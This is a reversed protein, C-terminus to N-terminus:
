LTNTKRWRSLHWSILLHSAVILVLILQRGILKTSSMWLIWKNIKSLTIKFLLTSKIQFLLMLLTSLWPWTVGFQPEKHCYVVDPADSRLVLGRWSLGCLDLIESVWWFLKEDKNCLAWNMTQLSLREEMSVSLHAVKIDLHRRIVFSLATFISRDANDTNDTWDGETLSRPLCDAIMLTCNGTTVM